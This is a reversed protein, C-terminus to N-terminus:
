KTVEEVGAIVWDFQINSIEKVLHNIGKFAENATKEKLQNFDAQELVDLLAIITGLMDNQYDFDKVDGKIKFQPRTQEKCM